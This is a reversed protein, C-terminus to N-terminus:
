WNILHLLKNLSIMLFTLFPLLYARVHSMFMIDEFKSGWEDEYINM